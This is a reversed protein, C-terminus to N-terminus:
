SPTSNNASQSEMLCQYDQHCKTLLGQMQHL